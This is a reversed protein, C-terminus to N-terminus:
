IVTVYSSIHQSLKAIARGYAQNSYGLTTPIGRTSSEWIASSANPVRFITRDQFCSSLQDEVAKYKAGSRNLVCVIREQDYGLETFIKLWRHCSAVGTVTAEFVLVIKDCTDTLTVFHRDLHRPLDFIWFSSLPRIIEMCKTLQSLNVQPASEGSLPPSLVRLPLNGYDLEISCADLLQEDLDPTRSLLELLSHRPEIGMIHAINPSQLDADVITTKITKMSLATALNIAITSAGVGGKAGLVAVFPSAAQRSPHINQALSVTATTM